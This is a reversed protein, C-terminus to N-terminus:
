DGSSEYFDWATITGPVPLSHEARPIVGQLWSLKTGPRGHHALVMTGLMIMGAFPAHVAVAQVMFPGGMADFVATVLDGHQVSSLLVGLFERDPDQGTLTGVFAADEGQLLTLSHIDREPKGNNEIGRHGLTRVGLVPSTFATGAVRFVGYHESKFTATALDAPGMRALTEAMGKVDRRKPLVPPTDALSLPESTSPLPVAAAAPAPAAGPDADLLQRFAAEGIIDVSQGKARLDQAKQVSRSVVAGPRLMDADWNGVVLLTTARTPAHNNLAGGHELVLQQLVPREVSFDGTFSVMHGSMKASVRAVPETLDLTARPTFRQARGAGSTAGARGAGSTAGARGVGPLARAAPASKGASGSVSGSGKAECFTLVADIDELGQQGALAITINACAEADALGDHHQFTGFGLAANVTPLKFNELTLFARALEVSCGYRFAQPAIGATESTKAFVGLDFIANHALIVDDDILAAIEPHVQAWTPAGAVMGETIGHVEVNRPWFGGGDTPRLLWERREVIRGDRVKVLGLACASDRSGNATEFDIATFNLTM